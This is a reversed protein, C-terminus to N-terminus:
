IAGDHERGRYYRRRALVHSLQTRSIYPLQTLIAEACTMRRPIGSEVVQMTRLSSRLLSTNAQMLRVQGVHETGNATRALSAIV